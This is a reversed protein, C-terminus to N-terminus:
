QDIGFSVWVWALPARLVIVRFEDKYGLPGFLLFYLHFFRESFMGIGQGGQGGALRQITGEIKDAQWKGTGTFLHGTKWGRM